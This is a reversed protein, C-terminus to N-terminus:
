TVFVKDRQLNAWARVESCSHVFIEKSIEDAEFREILKAIKRRCEKDIESLKQEISM